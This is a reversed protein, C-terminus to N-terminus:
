RIINWGIINMMINPHVVVMIATYDQSPKRGSKAFFTLIMVVTLKSIQKNIKSGYRICFEEFNEGLLSHLIKDNIHLIM